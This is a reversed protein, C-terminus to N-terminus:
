CVSRMSPLSYRLAWGTLARGSTSRGYMALRNLGFTAVAAALLLATAPEPVPPTLLIGRTVAAGVHGVPHHFAIAAIQGRDNIDHAYTITWNARDEPALLTNLDIMEGTTANPSTPTWLFAHYAVNTPVGVDSAGVVHGFSNMGYALTSGTDGLQGLDIMSGVEGNVTDPSWLFAKVPFGEPRHATGVVQGRDNIDMGEGGDYAGGLSGLDVMSGTEGNPSDPTWLFARNANESSSKGVVQGSSNIGNAYSYLSYDPLTGLDVMTGTSANPTTPSWLYPRMYAPTEVTGQGVVQGRSNIDSARGSFSGGPLNGLDVITGAQGNPSSPTWLFSGGGFTSEGIVQGYDNIGTAFSQRPPAYDGTALDLLGGDTANPTTPSWVTPNQPFLGINTGRTMGAVQGQANIAYAESADVTRFGPLLGLDTITYAAAAWSPVQLALVIVAFRVIAWVRSRM